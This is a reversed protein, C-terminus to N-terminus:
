VAILKNFEMYLIYALINAPYLLTMASVNKDSYCFSKQIPHEVIPLV